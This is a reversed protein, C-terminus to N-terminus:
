KFSLFRPRNGNEATENWPISTEAPTRIDLFWAPTPDFLGEDSIVSEAGTLFLNTMNESLDTCLCLMARTRPSPIQKTHEALRHSEATMFQVINIKTNFPRSLATSM